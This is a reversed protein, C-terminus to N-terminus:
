VVEVITSFPRTHNPGHKGGGGGGGGACVCVCNMIKLNRNKIGSFQFRLRNHNLNEVNKHSKLTNRCRLNYGVQSTKPMKLWKENAYQSYFIDTRDHACSLKQM